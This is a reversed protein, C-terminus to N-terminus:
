AESNEKLPFVFFGSCHGWEVIFGGHDAKGRSVRRVPASVAPGAQIAQDQKLLM